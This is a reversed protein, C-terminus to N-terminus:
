WEDCGGKQVNSNEKEKSHKTRRNPKGRSATEANNEDKKEDKQGQM